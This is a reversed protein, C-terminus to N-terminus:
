WQNVMSLALLYGCLRISRTRRSGISAAMALRSTPTGSVQARGPVDAAVRAGLGEGDVLSSRSEAPAHRSGISGSRGACEGDTRSLRIRTPTEGATNAYIRVHPGEQRPSCLSTRTSSRRRRHLMECVFEPVAITRLSGRDQYVSERVLGIAASRIAQGTIRITKDAKGYDSWM